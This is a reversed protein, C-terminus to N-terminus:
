NNKEILRGSRGARVAVTDKIVLFNYTSGLFEVQTVDVSRMALNFFFPSSFKFKRFFYVLNGTYCKSIAIQLFYTIIKITFDTM